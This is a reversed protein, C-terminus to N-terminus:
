SGQRVFWQATIRGEFLPSKNKKADVRKLDFDKIVFFGMDNKQLQEVLQFFQKDHLVNVNITATMTSLGVKYPMLEGHQVNMSEIRLKKQIATLRDKLMDISYAEDFRHKQYVVFAEPYKRSLADYNNLKVQAELMSKHQAQLQEIHARQASFHRCALTSLLAMLLASCLVVLCVIGTSVYRWVQRQARDVTLMQFLMFWM